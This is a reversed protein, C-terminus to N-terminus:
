GRYAARARRLAVIAPVLMAAGGVTAVTRNKFFLAFGLTEMAGVFTYVGLARGDPRTEVSIPLLRELATMVGTGVALWGVFNALPIGAYRGPRAWRWYDEGVMQPDLFLDWAALCAAGLAVRGARTSRGGLLAHATERAPVAMAFWAVPVAVPVGGVRPQLRDTYEYQGFPVGTVTGLREILATAIATTGAAMAARRAGCRRASLLGSTAGLGSVVALALRSRLRGGRRALPTAVIAAGAVVFAADAAHEIRM